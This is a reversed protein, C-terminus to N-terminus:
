SGREPEEWKQAVRPGLKVDARPLKLKEPLPERREDRQTEPEIEVLEALRLGFRPLALRPEVPEEGFAPWPKYPPKFYPEPPSAPKWGPDPSFMSPALPPANTSVTVRIELSLPEVEFPHAIVPFGQPDPNFEAATAASVVLFMLIGRGEM